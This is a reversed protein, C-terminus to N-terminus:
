FNGRTHSLPRTMISSQLAARCRDSQQRSVGRLVRDKSIRGCDANHAQGVAGAIASPAQDKDLAFSCFLVLVSFQVCDLMVVLAGLGPLLEPSRTRRAVM